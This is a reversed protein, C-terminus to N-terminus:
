SSGVHYKSRDTMFILDQSARTAATYSWRRLDWAGGGPEVVAVSKWESGQAKHCTIAYAYDWMSRRSQPMPDAGFQAIAVSVPGVETGVGDLAVMFTVVGKGAMSPTGVVTGIEGNYVGIAYDNRLCIVRDGENLVKKHGLRRRCAANIEHRLANYGCLVQDVQLEAIKETSLKRYMQVGRRIGDPYWPEDRRLAHAFDIIPNELAQRMVTELRVRPAKMLGPDDGVPELQGHDGVWLIKCGIQRLDDAIRKDVMSSEDVILVKSGIKGHFEFQPAGSSDEGAFDYAASHITRAHSVGKARLVSAAKGSPSVVTAQVGKRLIEKVLTTKGTGALGGLTFERDGPDTIWELVSDLAVQQEPTLQM